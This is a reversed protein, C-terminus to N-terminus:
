KWERVSEMFDESLYKRVRKYNMDAILVLSHQEDRTDYDQARGRRTRGLMQQLAWATRQLYFKGSRKQRAQEYPDGLSPFPCKASVCIREDLGDFGEHFQWAIMLSGPVQRKRKEWARAAWNTSGEPPVWVRKGLGRDSLRNALLPAERKRTVHIIGSWQSPVTLIAQAIADAQRDYDEKQSKYGLRPVDLVYVPRQEPGWQSPVRRGTYSQIGLEQAFVDFDGITASM